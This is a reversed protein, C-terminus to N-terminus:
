HESFNIREVKLTVTSYQTQQDDNCWMQPISCVKYGEEDLQEIEHPETSRPILFEIDLRQPGKGEPQLTIVAVGKCPWKTPPNEQQLAVVRVKMEKKSGYCKLVICLKYGQPHSYFGSSMFTGHHVLNFVTLTHSNDRLHLNAIRVVVPPCLSVEEKLRQIIGEYKQKMEEIKKRFEDELQKMQQRIDIDTLKMDKITEIAYHLHKDKNKRNHEDAEDRLMMEKCGIDEFQCSISEKRCISRHIEVKGLQGEWVCGKGSNPCMIKLGQIQKKSPSDLVDQSNVDM